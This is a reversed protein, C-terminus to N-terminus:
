QGMVQLLLHKDASLFDSELLDTSPPSVQTVQHIAEMVAFEMVPPMAEPSVNGSYNALGALYDNGAASLPSQIFQDLSADNLDVPTFMNEHPSPSSSALMSDMQELAQMTPQHIMSVPMSTVSTSSSSNNTASRSINTGANKM